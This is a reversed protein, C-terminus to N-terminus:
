RTIDQLDHEHGNIYFDVKRETLMDPLVSLLEPTDGHRGNSRVPHHGVVIKWPAMSRELAVDLKGTNEKVKDREDLIGGSVAAWSEQACFGSCLRRTLSFFFM